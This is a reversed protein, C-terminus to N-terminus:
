PRDDFCGQPKGRIDPVVMESLFNQGEFQVYDPEFRTDNAIMTKRQRAARGILGREVRHRYSLPLYWKGKEAIALVNFEKHETDYTLVTVVDCNFTQQIASVVLQAAVPQDLVTKLSQEIESLLALQVSRKRESGLLNNLMRIQEDQQAIRKRLKSNEGLGFLNIRSTWKRIGTLLKNDLHNASNTKPM